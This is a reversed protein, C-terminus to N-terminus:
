IRKAEANAEMADCEDFKNQKLAPKWQEKGTSDEDVRPKLTLHLSASAFFNQDKGTSDDDVKTKTDFATVRIYFFKPQPCQLLM